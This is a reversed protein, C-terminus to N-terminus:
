AFRLQHEFALGLGTSDVRRIEGSGIMPIELPVGGLDARANVTLRIEIQM